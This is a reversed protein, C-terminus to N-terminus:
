TSPGGDGCKRAVDARREASMGAVFLAHQDWRDARCSALACLARTRRSTLREGAAFCAAAAAPWDDRRVARRIQKTATRASLPAAVSPSTIPRVGHNVDAPPAVPLAADVIAPVAAAGRAPEAERPGPGHVPAHVPSDPAVVASMRASGGNRILTAIRPAAIVIVVIGALALGVLAGSRRWSRRELRAITESPTELEQRVDLQPMGSSIRIALVDADAAAGAAVPVAVPATAPRGLAVQTNPNAEGSASGRDIGLAVLDTIRMRRTSREGNETIARGLTHALRVGHVLRKALKGVDTMVLAMGAGAAVREIAEALAAGTPYRERHDKRLASEVVADIALPLGQRMASPAPIPDCLVARATAQEGDREFAPQGTLLEFLIAGAGFVASSRSVTEAQGPLQQEPPVCGLDAVTGTRADVLEIAGDFHLVVSTPTVISLRADDIRRAIAAVLALALEVPMLEERARLRHIMGRVLVNGRPRNSGSMM